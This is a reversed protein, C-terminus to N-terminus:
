PLWQLPTRPRIDNWIITPDMRFSLAYRDPSFFNTRKTKQAVEVMKELLLKSSDLNLSCLM